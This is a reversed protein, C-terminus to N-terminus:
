LTSLQALSNITISISETRGIGNRGPITFNTLLSHACEVLNPWIAAARCDYLEDIPPSVSWTSARLSEELGGAFHSKM